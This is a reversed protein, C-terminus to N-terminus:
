PLRRELEAALEAVHFQLSGIIAALDEQDDPLPGTDAAERAFLIMNRARADALAPKTEMHLLKCLGSLRHLWQM